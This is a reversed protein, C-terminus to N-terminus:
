GARLARVFEDPREPTILLPRGARQEVVVLWDARSVYLDALGRKSTWAWGFGGWLGGVGIRGGWGFEERFSERTVVRAATIAGRPILRRLAPRVIALGDARVEFRTPRAYLWVGVYLLVLLGALGLNVTAGLGVARLGIVAFVAPLALLPVTLVWVLALPFAAM